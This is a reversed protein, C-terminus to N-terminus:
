PIPNRSKRRVISSVNTQNIAFLDAIRQQTWGDAYLQRITGVEADTVKARGHQEGRLTGWRQRGKAQMDAINEHQTGVFLHAPNCCSPCDCRHCVVLGSAVPGHALRYAIRHATTHSGELIFTGYGFRTKSGQWLWCHTADDTREVLSWFREATNKPRGM